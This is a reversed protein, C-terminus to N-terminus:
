GINQVFCPQWEAVGLVDIVDYRQHSKLSQLLKETAIKTDALDDHINLLMETPRSCALEVFTDSGIQELRKCCDQCNEIHNEVQTIVEFDLLKGLIFERLQSETPHINAYSDM